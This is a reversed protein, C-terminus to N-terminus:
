ALLRQQTVNRVEALCFNDYGCETYTSGCTVPNYPDFDCQGNDNSPCNDQQATAMRRSASLLLLAIAGRLSTSAVLM